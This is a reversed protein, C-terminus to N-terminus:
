GPVKESWVPNDNHLLQVVPLNALWTSCVEHSSQGDPYAPGLDDCVLVFPEGHDVMVNWSALYNMHAGPHSVILPRDEVKPLPVDCFIQNDKWLM